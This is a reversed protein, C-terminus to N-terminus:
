ALGRENEYRVLAAFRKSRGAKNIVRIKNIAVNIESALMKFAEEAPIKEDQEVNGYKAELAAQKEAARAKKADNMRKLTKQIQAQDM